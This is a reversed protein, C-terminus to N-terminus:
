GVAVLVVTERGLDDAMPDPQIVVEAEAIAIHLCAQENATHEDRVFRDPFPTTFEALLIGILEAMPTRLGTILPMGILHDEGDITLTVVEPPPDILLAMTEINQDLTATVFCGGLLEKPLQEVGTPVDRSDDDSGPPYLVLSM